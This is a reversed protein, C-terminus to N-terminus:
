RPWDAPANASLEGAAAAAAPAASGPPATRLALAMLPPAALQAAAVGLVITTLLAGSSATGDGGYTIFVNLGMAIAAGGQATTGLGVNPPFAAPRLVVTGSRVAAWKVAARAAALLPVAVLVWWTPLTLLAGAIVLFIAYVPHEWDALMRHVVHRRPSANVILATALACVLFPSLEAAYGVGAGFLLTGLLVVGVDAREPRLRTLSLFVMGVLTASGVAFLLGALWGLAVRGALQHSRHLALALTFALAGGATELAAALSVARTVSKRIGLARAVLTVTEPGSAAAVAGLTLLAPLRPSWAASLAPVVRALLGAGLTVAAFAATASLAALLWTGRGIRRVYRWEFRAGLAAGIWGIALATVPALTRLVSRDILDIGPGLVVGLVVLPGGAALVPDLSTVHRWRVPPLRTALLGIAALGALALVPSVNM